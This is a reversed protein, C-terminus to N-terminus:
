ARPPAGAPPRGGGQAGTRADRAGSTIGGFPHPGPLLTLWPHESALWLADAIERPQLDGPSVLWPTAAPTRPGDQGRVDRGDPGPGDSM